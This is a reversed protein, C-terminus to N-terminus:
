LIKGLVNEIKIAEFNTKVSISSWTTSSGAACLSSSTCLKRVKRLPTDTHTPLFSLLFFCVFFFCFLFLLLRKTTLQKCKTEMCSCRSRPMKTENNESLASTSFCFLIIRNIKNKQGGRKEPTRKGPCQGVGFDHFLLNAHTNKFM